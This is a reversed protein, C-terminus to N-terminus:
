AHVEGANGSGATTSRDPTAPRDAVTRTIDAFAAFAPSDTVIVTTRGRRHAALGQAMRMETHADVAQTPNLLILVDPDALLSRAVLLRQRQGGSLTYGRGGVPSDLGDPLTRLLDTASVADLAHALHQDDHRTHPDLTTRLTGAFLGSLPTTLLVTRHLLAPDLRDLPTGRLHVRSPRYGGFEDAIRAGVAADHVQIVILQGRRVTIGRATDRLEPCSASPIPIDLGDGKIAGPSLATILRRSAILAKAAKDYFEAATQLPVVLFATLGSLTLLTGPSMEGVLALRAAIGLTLLGFLGPLLVNASDVVTETRSLRVAIARAQQSQARYRHLFDGEGGTGRLVRLGHVADVASTSLDDVTDRLAQQGSSLPRMVPRIGLVLAPMTVLTLAGLLPATALLLLSVAAFAVLAGAARAAIRLFDGVPAIDGAAVSAVGTGADDPARQRGNASHRAVLLMVRSNATRASSESFRNRLAGCIHLVLALGALPLCGVLVTRTTAGRTAFLDDIQRGVLVPLAAQALMWVIGFLCAATITRAQQRALWLLLRAPSRVDPAGTTSLHPRRM